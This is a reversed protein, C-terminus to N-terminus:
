LTMQIKRTYENEFGTGCMQMLRVARNEIDSIRKAEPSSNELSKLSTGCPVDMTDKAAKLIEAGKKNFALVRVYPVTVFDSKKIRLTLALASRRLRALTFNKSKVELLFDSYSEPPSKAAGIIRESINENMEPLEMLEERSATLLKYYLLQEAQAIDCIRGPLCGDPIYDKFNGGDVMLRRLYSGSAYEDIPSCDHGAGIRTILMIEARSSYRNLACIYEAALTSNPSSVVKAIDSGFSDEAASKLAAPYSNGQSVLEKVTHSNQLEYLADACDKLLRADAIESGFALTDINLRTLIQIASDAFWPAASCSYPAPLEVVMDAGCSLAFKAREHKSCIAPEGRQVAAGSMVVAIHTAGRRRVESLLYAHGKHFPNFEAVVGAINM